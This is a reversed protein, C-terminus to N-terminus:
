NQASQSRPFAESVPRGIWCGPPTLGLIWAVTPATDYTNVSSQIQHGAAVGPGHIIWPIEIEAMTAGGHSKGVGGHDATILVITKSGVGSTQVADMLEAVLRDIEEVAAYYQPSGFGHTHGAHDVEDFHMFLLNPKRETFLAIARRATAPTGKVHELVDPARPELLRGFGEWDHVVVIRAAPRQQRLVGFITPFIGGSGIALPAIDYRHPEWDNSTVGHQEPGAGMIMSAWNPSSSTPLVGRAYLTFAGERMLRHMVPANDAKFAISGLGDVGVIIVHEVGGVGAFALRACLTCVAVLWLPQCLRFRVTQPCVSSRNM